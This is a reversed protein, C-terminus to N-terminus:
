WTPIFEKINETTIHFSSDKGEVIKKAVKRCFGQLTRELSRTGSDFGLPRIVIPWVSEEVSITSPDLGAEKITKALMYNKAISIKESDTYSPMQLTDLRDLVATSINTTNNATAIFLVESLDFPYDIYNDVFNANQEPDLLELLVGMIDARASESVRDIEDLLIVPNKFKIRRLTKIIQGPESNNVMQSQGRLEQASGMGGLPIRAFERNMSQAISQAITTKGTGALGVFCLIPARLSNAQNKTKILKLVAIYELIREKIENLGFHSKNLTNAVNKLDLVDDTRSNWPLSTIWHIYRTVQDISSINAGFKLSLAVREILTEARTKLDDPLASQNVLTKLNEIEPLSQDM